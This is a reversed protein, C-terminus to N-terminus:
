GGLRKALKETLDEALKLAREATKPDDREIAMHAQDLASGLRARLAILSANLSLGEQHLRWEISDASQMQAVASSAVVDFRDRLDGAFALALICWLIM